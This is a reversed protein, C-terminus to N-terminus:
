KEKEPLKLEYIFVTKNIKHVLKFDPDRDLYLVVRLSDVPFTKVTIPFIQNEYLWYYTRPSVILFVKGYNEFQKHASATFEQIREYSGDKGLWLFVTQKLQQMLIWTENTYEWTYYEAYEIMLTDKGTICGLFFMTAPDSIILVSENRFNNYIWFSADIDYTRAWSNYGEGVSRAFNEFYETRVSYVNPLILLLMALVYFSKPTLHYEKLRDMAPRFRRLFSTMQVKSGMRRLVDFLFLLLYSLMVAALPNLYAVARWLLGEPLFTVFLITGSVFALSVHKRSGLVCILCFSIFFLYVALAPGEDLFRFWKQQVSIDVVMGKFVDGFLWRTLAFNDTVNAVLFILFSIVPLIISIIRLKRMHKDPVSLAFLFCGLFFVVMTGVYPHAIAALALPFVFVALIAIRNPRNRNLIFYIAILIVPLILSLFIFLNPPIIRGGKGFTYTLPSLFIIAFSLIYSKVSLDKFWLSSPQYYELAVYIMWTFISFVLPTNELTTLNLNGLLFIWPGVFAPVLSIKPDKTIKYSILYLAFPYAIHSLYNTASLIQLPHFDYVTAPISLIVSVWHSYGHVLEVYGNEM